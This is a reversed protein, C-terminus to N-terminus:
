QKNLQLTSDYFESKCKPCKGEALINEYLRGAFPIHCKPCCFAIKYDKENKNKKAVLEKGAKSCYVTLGVLFLIAIVPGIWAYRKMDDGGMAPIVASISGGALSCVLSLSRLSTLNSQKQDISIKNAEYEESLQRLHSIDIREPPNKSPGPLPAPKPQPVQFLQGIRFTFYPGLRVDTSADVDCQEIQQFHNGMRVYTGNQSQNTIRMKGTREDYIFIAHRRSVYQDTIQFPQNGEKGIVLQKM